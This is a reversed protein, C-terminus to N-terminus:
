NPQIEIWIENRRLFWLTWPSNFRAFVPDGKTKVGDSNLLNKFDELKESYKKESWSGSYSFVAIKRVPLLRIQVRKDQPQPLTELNYKSPMTFSVVFKGDKQEQTVPATMAIKESKQQTVPATMAIETKSINNGFIFNALIRFAKNGADDFASEVETVAILTEKYERIEYRDNKTVIQYAPEEIAMARSGNLLFFLPIILIYSNLANM